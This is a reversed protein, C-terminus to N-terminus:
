DLSRVVLGKALWEETEIRAEEKPLEVVKPFRRTLEEVVDLLPEQFVWIPRDSLPEMEGTHGRDM